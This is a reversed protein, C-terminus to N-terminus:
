QQIPGIPGLGHTSHLNRLWSSSLALQADRHNHITQNLLHNQLHQIGNEIRGKGIGAVSEPRSAASMHSQLLGPLVYGLFPALKDHIEIQLFNKSRTFWSIRMDRIARLIPSLRRSRMM